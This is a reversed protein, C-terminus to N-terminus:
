EFHQMNEIRKLYCFQIVNGGGREWDTIRRVAGSVGIRNCPEDLPRGDVSVLKAM